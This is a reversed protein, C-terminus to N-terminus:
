KLHKDTLYRKYDEEVVEADKMIGSLSATLPPLEDKSLSHKKGILAFYDSVLRSVSTGKERAYKKADKILSEDMRLTLKNKM